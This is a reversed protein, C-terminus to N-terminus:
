SAEEPAWSPRPAAQVTTVLDWSSQGGPPNYIQNLKTVVQSYSYGERLTAGIYLEVPHEVEYDARQQRELERAAAIEERTRRKRTPRSLSAM